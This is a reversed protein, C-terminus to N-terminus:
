YLISIVAQIQCALSVELITLNCLSTVPYNSSQKLTLLLQQPYLFICFSKPFMVGDILDAAELFKHCRSSILELNAPLYTLRLQRLLKVSDKTDNRFRNRENTLTKFSLAKRLLITSFTNLTGKLHLM